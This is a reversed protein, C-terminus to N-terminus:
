SICVVCDCGSIDNMGQVLIFQLLGLKHCFYSDSKPTCKISMKELKLKRPWRLGLFILFLLPLILLGFTNLEELKQITLYFHSIYLKILFLRALKTLNARLIPSPIHVSSNHKLRTEVVLNNFILM